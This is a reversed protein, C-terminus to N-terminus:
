PITPLTFLTDMNLVSFDTTFMLDYANIVMTSGGATGLGGLPPQGGPPATSMQSIPVDGGALTFEPTLIAHGAENLPVPVTAPQGNILIPILNGSADLQRFGANLVQHIWTDFNVDFTYEMPFYFSNSVQSYMFDPLKLPNLRVTAVPFGNWVYGNKTNSLAALTALNVASPVENRLVTLTARTVERMLPPDYPDGAANVIPNGDLDIFAAVEAVTFDIRFRTPVHIPNGDYAHTVYDWAGYELDIQWLNALGNTAPDTVNAAVLECKVDLCRQNSASPHLGYIGLGAAGVANLVYVMDDGVSFLARYGTSSDRIFEDNIHGSQAPAQAISLLTM